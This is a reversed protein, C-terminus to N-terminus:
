ASGQWDESARCGTEGTQRITSRRHESVAVSETVSVTVTEAVTVSVAVTVAEAAAVFVTEAM